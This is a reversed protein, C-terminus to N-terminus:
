ISPRNVFDRAQPPYLPGGRPGRKLAEIDQARFSCLLADVCPPLGVSLHSRVIEGNEDKDVHVTRVVHIGSLTIPAAGSPADLADSTRAGSSARAVRERLNVLVDGANTCTRM